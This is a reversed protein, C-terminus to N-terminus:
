VYKKFPNYTYELTKKLTKNDKNNQLISIKDNSSSTNKLMQIIEIVKEMDEM